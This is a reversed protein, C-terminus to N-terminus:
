FIDRCFRQRTPKNRRVSIATAPTAKDAAAPLSVSSSVAAGVAAGSADYLAFRLTAKAANSGTNVVEASALVEASTASSGLAPTGRHVIASQAAAAAATTSRSPPAAVHGHAFIGDTELHVPPASHLWTKRYIGTKFLL